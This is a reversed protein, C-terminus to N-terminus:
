KRPTGPGSLHTGAANGASSNGYTGPLYSYKHPMGSGGRGEGTRACSAKGTGTGGRAEGQQADGGANLSPALVSWWPAASVQRQAKPAAKRKPSSIMPGM